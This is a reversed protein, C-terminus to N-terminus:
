ILNKAEVVTNIGFNQLWIQVEFKKAMQAGFRKLLKKKKKSEAWKILENCDHDKIM